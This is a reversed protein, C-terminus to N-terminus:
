DPMKKQFTKPTTGTWRLFARQFASQETYGLLQAVDTLQLSPDRLYQEAMHKRIDDLLERFATQHEHLRRRLTRPAISLANAVQELGPEGSHILNAICRRVHMVFESEKPLQTLFGEAQKELIHVLTPDPQRLPINLYALSVQIATTPQNFLVKGGFFDDYPRTDLPESNVFWVETAVLHEGSMARSIQSFAAVAFEHSLRASGNPDGGNWIFRIESGDVHMEMPYKDMEHMLREYAQYRLLSAGLTPCSALIYGLVGFHAPRIIQGLKLGLLPDELHTAASRLFSIWLQMSYRLLTNDAAEPEAVGLLASADVGRNKLYEFLVRVYASSVFGTDFNSM